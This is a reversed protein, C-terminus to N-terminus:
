IENYKRRVLEENGYYVHWNLGDYMEMVSFHATNSVYEVKSLKDKGSESFKYVEIDPPLSKGMVKILNFSPYRDIGEKYYSKMDNLGKVWNDMLYRTGKYIVIYREEFCSTFNRLLGYKKCANRIDRRLNKYDEQSYCHRTYMGVM